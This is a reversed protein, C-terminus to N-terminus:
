RGRNPCFRFGEFSDNAALVTALIKVAEAPKGTRVYVSAFAKAAPESGPM